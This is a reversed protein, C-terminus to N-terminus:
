ALPQQGTNSCDLTVRHQGWSIGVVNLTSVIKETFIWDGARVLLYPIHWASDDLFFDELLGVYGRSDWIQFSSIDLAGRLHPDDGEVPVYYEKLPYDSSANGWCRELGHWGFHRRWAMRQQLSVPRVSEAGESAVIESSTLRTQVVKKRWEPAEVETVPIIVRHPSLWKGADVVLFRTCWSRDDFLINRIAYKEGDASLLPMELTVALSHFM